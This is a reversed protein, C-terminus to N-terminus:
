QTPEPVPPQNTLEDPLCDSFPRDDGDARNLVRGFFTAALNVVQDRVTDSTLGHTPVDSPTVDFGTIAKVLPTIDTPTTFSDFGCFDMAVGSGPHAASPPQVIQRATEHDLVALSSNQAIAGSSQMVACLASDFHRHVANPITVLLKDTSGVTDIAQQSTALPSTVDLTGGLLLVPVEVDQVNAAFTISPAAIALGMLARIRPDAGFGWTRSGGVVSLATATGRSHGMVGVRGMDVRDGFWTPLADLVAVVDRFRDIMSDPVSAHSCPSPLGDLCAIAAQKATNVVDIRVDDQTNNLHDPAAVVYGYSALAELTYAYDVAADM